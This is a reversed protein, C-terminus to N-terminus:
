GARSFMTVVVVGDAALRRTYANDGMIGKAVGDGSEPTMQTALVGDMGLKRQTHKEPTTVTPRNEASSRILANVRREEEIKYEWLM